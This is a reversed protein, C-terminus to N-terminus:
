REKMIDRSDNQTSALGLGAIAGILGDETGGLGQLTIGPDAALSCTMEQNLVSKKQKM